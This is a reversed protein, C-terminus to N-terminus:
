VPLPDGRRGLRTLGDRVKKVLDGESIVSGQVNIIIPQESGPSVVREPRGTKNLAMTLGPQLWGGKDFLVPGGGAMGLGNGGARFSAVQRQAAPSLGPVGPTISHIHHGWPGQAPTRHWAIAGLSRIVSVARDWTASNPAVDMAGAGAHTGGSAAVSTSWSGQMLRLGGLIAAAKQFINATTADLLKGQISVRGGGLNTAAGLGGGGTAAMQKALAATTKKAFADANRDRFATGEVGIWNPDPLATNVDFGVPGGQAMGAFMAMVANHGGAADVQKATLVHEGNSLRFLGAEDSTGTGPGHVPGGFAMRGVATGLAIANGGSTIERAVMDATIKISEDNIGGLAKNVGDRFVAFKDRAEALKDGIGPIWSFANAASDLIRQAMDLFFNIVARVGNQTFTKINDWATSINDKLTNFNEWANQVSGVLYGFIPKIVNEWAFKAANQIVDWATDVINRFTEFHQYAWIVGAVLAAVAIIILGIPNADMVANLIGQVVAWIRLAAVLGLVIAVFPGFFDLNNKVFEAMSQLAPVVTGMIFDGFERLRPLVQAQFYDFVQRAVVGVQEM